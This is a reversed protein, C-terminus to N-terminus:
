GCGIRRLFRNERMAQERIAENIKAVHDSSRDKRRLVQLTTVILAASEKTMSAVTQNRNHWESSRQWRMVSQHSVGLLRAAPRVGGARLTLEEILPQM